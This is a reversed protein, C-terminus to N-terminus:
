FIRVDTWIGMACLRVYLDAFGVTLLSAWFFLNHYQNLWSVGAWSTRRLEGARACSFCDVHGGVLHRLSHCSGVYLTLLITDAAIVLSGVIVPWLVESGLSRLSELFGGKELSRFLSAFTQALERYSRAPLALLLTGVWYYAYYLPIITLPNSLWILALAVPLNARLPLAVLAALFMQIGVTPTFTLWTGLAAGRALSTPTGQARLIPDVLNRRVAAWLKM